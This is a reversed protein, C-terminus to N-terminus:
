QILHKCSGNEKGGRFSTEFSIINCLCTSFLFICVFVCVRRWSRHLHGESRTVSLTFALRKRFEIIHKTKRTSFPVILSHSRSIWHFSFNNYFVTKSKQYKGFNQSIEHFKLVEVIKLNTKGTKLWICMRNVFCTFCCADLKSRPRALHALRRFPSTEKECRTERTILM